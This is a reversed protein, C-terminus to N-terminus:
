VSQGNEDLVLYFASVRDIIQRTSLGSEDQYELEAMVGDSVAKGYAIYAERLTDFSAFIGNTTDALHYMVRDKRENTRWANGTAVFAHYARKLIIVFKKKSGDFKKESLQRMVLYRARARMLARM